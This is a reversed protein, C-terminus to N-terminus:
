RPITPSVKQKAVVHKFEHFVKKAKDATGLVGPLLLLRVIPKQIM